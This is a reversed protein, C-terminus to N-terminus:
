DLACGLRPASRVDLAREASFVEQLGPLADRTTVGSREIRQRHAGRARRVGPAERDEHPLAVVMPRQSLVHARGGGERSGREGRGGPAVVSATVAVLDLVDLVHALTELCGFEPLRRHRAPVASFALPRGLTPSVFVPAVGLYALVATAGSGNLACGRLVAVDYQNTGVGESEHMVRAQDEEPLLVHVALETDRTSEDGYLAAYLRAETLQAARATAKRLDVDPSTPATWSPVTWM